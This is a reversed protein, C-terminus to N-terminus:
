TSDQAQLVGVLLIWQVRFLVLSRTLTQTCSWISSSGRSSRIRATRQRGWTARTRSRWSMRSRSRASATSRRFPERFDVVLQAMDDDTHALSVLWQEDLGPPTLINRNVGWLWSLEAMRFDTAKYDRYNRVPTPSWTVAGKVGFREAERVTQMAVALPALILVRRSTHREVQDAWATQMLTKGLGTGAWLAARGRGCTWRIADRQYDFAEPCVDGDVRFGVPAVSSLKRTIFDEYSM